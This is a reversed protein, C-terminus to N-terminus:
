GAAARNTEPPALPSSNKLFRSQNTPSLSKPSRTPFPVEPPTSRKPPPRAAPTDPHPTLYLAKASDPNPPTHQHWFDVEGHGEGVPKWTDTDQRQDSSGPGGIRHNLNWIRRQLIRHAQPQLRVTFALPASRRCPLHEMPKLEFVLCRFASNRESLHRHIIPCPIILRNM